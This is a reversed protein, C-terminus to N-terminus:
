TVFVFVLLNSLATQALKAMLNRHLSFLRFKKSRQTPVSGSHLPEFEKQLPYISVSVSGISSSGTSSAGWDNQQGSQRSSGAM